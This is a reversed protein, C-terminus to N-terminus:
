MVAVKVANSDVVVIYIGPELRSETPLSMGGLTYIAFSTYPSLVRIHGGDTVVVPRSTAKGDTIIDTIGSKPGSVYVAFAGAPLTIGNATMSPTVDASAAVLSYKNDSLFATTGTAPNTPFPITASETVKASAPNVVLYLESTGDTLSIYRATTSSLEVGATANERFLAPYYARIGCLAKFTALLGQRAPSSSIDWTVKKPSTDNGSNNKTTQNNAIEEFQWIMHAGPSLLMQAAMSGIRQCLATFDGKVVSSGSTTGYAVREEDHSEAYSVTSGWLRNGDQPAYFRSLSTDGTGMVYNRASWNVNAWNIEGDRAMDNEEESGALNENIFYADPNTLMMSEHLAKMRAVRTANFRNTNNDNPTGWTNTAADFTNGYSDNDGLGKVLDFRFGDVKYATMWYDLADRWQQQVLECDQNWDNLVSYAHPASGNYFPSINRRVMDFWPHAGDSQNFVIDLIVAMGREHAGDILARYDDPTGYAKDPAMYFNTNYGWSNNGAFEMIPLLEIANVGLEKLYDLKSIVGKVTGEGLAKGETGTFDRILLEYIILDSQPVGKFDTVKWDYVDRESNFIALPVGTIKKSPYAPLGPFVSSSIYQDNNPDLVLRAYPDGVNISGDINYYYIYDKGKELNDLTLWFYRNGNYDQYNMVYKPAATYDNWSGMMVANTKGPAAICFTVSGDANIETGMKPTGGPYVAEKSAPFNKPFVQVFIDGGCGTKCESSGDSNRFVFALKEINENSATINYYERLDPIRMEWTFPGTYTLKYKETNTGWTPANKWQGDSLNTIVGTHAYIGTSASADVLGRNGGDSHFTIVIDKSDETIIAPSTTISQASVAVSASIASMAWLHRLNLRM